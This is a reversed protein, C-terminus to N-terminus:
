RVRGCDALVVIGIPQIDKGNSKASDSPPSLNTRRANRLLRLPLRFQIRRTSPPGECARSYSTIRPRCLKPGPWAVIGSSCRDRSTM